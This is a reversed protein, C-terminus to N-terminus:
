LIWFRLYFPADGLEDRLVEFRLSALPLVFNEGQELRQKSLTCPSLWGSLYQEQISIITRQHGTVAVEPTPVNTIAALSDLSPEGRCTWHDWLCAVLWTKLHSRILSWFSTRRRRRVQLWNATSCESQAALRNHEQQRKRRLRGTSRKMQLRRSNPVSPPSSESTGRGFPGRIRCM